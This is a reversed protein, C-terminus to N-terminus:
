YMKVAVQSHLTINATDIDISSVFRENQLLGIPVIYCYHITLCSCDKRVVVCRVGCVVVKDVTGKVCVTRYMSFLSMWLKKPILAHATLRM